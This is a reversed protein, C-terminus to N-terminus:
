DHDNDKYLPTGQEKEDNPLMLELAFAKIKQARFRCVGDVNIWVTERNESVSIELRKPDRVDIMQIVDIKTM